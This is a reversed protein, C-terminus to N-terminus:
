EIKLYMYDFPIDENEMKFFSMHTGLKKFGFRKYLAIAAANDSRVQLDIVGISNEKAFKIIETLLRSGVGKNWYEKLVAIGLDARHHMRRPLRDLGADGIIRGNDKAVFLVGDGSNELEKIYAVEEEVSLSLGESGFTLNDTESGVKKLYELIAEADDCIAKEIVISM